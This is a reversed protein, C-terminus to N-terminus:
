ILGIPLLGYMLDVPLQQIEREYSPDVNRLTNSLKKVVNDHIVFYIMVRCQFSIKKENTPKVHTKINIIGADNHM